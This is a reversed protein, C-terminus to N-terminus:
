ESTDLIGIISRLIALSVAYVPGIGASGLPTSLFDGSLPADSAYYAVGVALDPSVRGRLRAQELAKAYPTGEMEVGLAHWRDRFYRLAERNQLFTGAVTLMPGGTHIASDTFGEFDNESLCNGVEYTDGSGLKVFFTPLLVEGRKGVLTGAKGMIYIGRLQKGLCELLENLLFFAEEGFAYDMNLIVGDTRELWGLRTDVFQPDIEALDVLQCFPMYDPTELLHIGSEADCELKARRAPEDILLESLRAYDDLKEWAEQSALKRVFPSLCNILSHRNSSVIVIPRDVMGLREIHDNVIRVWGKARRSYEAVLGFSDLFVVKLDKPGSSIISMIVELLRGKLAADLAKVEAYDAGFEVAVAHLLSRKMERSLDADPALRELENWVGLQDPDESQKARFRAYKARIKDAEIQYCTIASIFDLLDSFGGRFATVLSEEATQFTPRRRALTEVSPFDEQVDPSIRRSIAIQRIKWFGDPLRRLIYRLAGVDIRDPDRAHPYLAPESKILLQRLSAGSDGGPKYYGRLIIATALTEYEQIALRKELSM